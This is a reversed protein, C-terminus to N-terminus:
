QGPNSKAQALARVRAVEMEAKVQAIQARILERNEEKAALLEQTLEEIRREYARNQHQIQHEVRALREEVALAKFTAAQQTGLLEAREAILRRMLKEKLWQSWLAFFGSQENIPGQQSLSGSQTHTRAPGEVHMVPLPSTASATRAEAVPRAMFVVTAAPPPATKASAAGSLSPPRLAASRKRALWVVIWGGILGTLTGILWPSRLSHSRGEPAVTQPVATSPRLVTAETPRAQAENPAAAPPAAPSVTLDCTVGNRDLIVGPLATPDPAVQAVFEGKLEEVSSQGNSMTVSRKLPAGLFAEIYKSDGSAFAIKNDSSTLGPPANFAGAVAVAEIRNTMWNKLSDIQAQWQRAPASNFRGRGPLGETSGDPRMTNDFLM